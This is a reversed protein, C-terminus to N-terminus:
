QESLYTGAPGSGYRSEETLVSVSHVGPLMQADKVFQRFSPADPEDPDYRDRLVQPPKGVRRIILYRTRLV